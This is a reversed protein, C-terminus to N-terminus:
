EGGWSKRLAYDAATLGGGISGLQSGIYGGVGAGTTPHIRGRSALGTLAGLGGGVLGGGLGGAMSGGMGYLLGRGASEWGKGEPAALGAYAPGLLANLARQGGTPEEALKIAVDDAASKEMGAEQLALSAGYAYADLVAAQKDMM